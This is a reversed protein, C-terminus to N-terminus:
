IHILSLKPGAMGHTALTEMLQTEVRFVHKLAQFPDQPIFGIDRGRVQAQMAAGPLGVLDRSGLRISGGAIRSRKPLVGLIATLLTSKGCGSEGVVGHISGAELTLSAHDLIQAQGEDTDIVVSLDRIALAPAPARASAPVSTAAATM